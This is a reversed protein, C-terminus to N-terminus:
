KNEVYFTRPQLRSIFPRVLEGNKKVHPWMNKWHNREIEDELSLWHHYDKQLKKFDEEFISKRLWGSAYKKYLTDMARRIIRVSAPMEYFDDEPMDEWALDSVEFDPLFGTRHLFEEKARAEKGYGFNWYKYKARKDEMDAIEDQRMKELFGKELEKAKTIRKEREVEIIKNRAKESAKKANELQAKKLSNLVEEHEKKYAPDNKLRWEHRAKNARQKRIFKDWNQASMNLPHLNSFGFNYSVCTNYM